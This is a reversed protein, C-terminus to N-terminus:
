FSGSLMFSTAGLGLSVAGVVGSTVVLTNATSRRSELTTPDTTNYFSAKTALAGGYLGGAVALGAVAGVLLPTSPRRRVSPSAGVPEAGGGGATEYSPLPEGAEVVVTQTVAGREDLLQFIVPLPRARQLARSGNLRISGQKPPPVDDIPGEGPDLAEYDNRIPNEAPVLDTPFVYDPEVTRAAAFSKQAAPSNRALFLQIGKVRHYEAASPMSIPEDLCVIITTARDAAANFADIELKSFAHTAEELVEVLEANSRPEECAAHATGGVVFLVATLMRITEM